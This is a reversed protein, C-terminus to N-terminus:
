GHPIYNHMYCTCQKRQGGPYEATDELLMSVDESAMCEFDDGMHVTGTSYCGGSSHGVSSCGGDSHQAQQQQQHQLQQQPWHQQPQWQQQRQLHRPQAANHSSDQCLAEADEFDAEALDALRSRAEEM